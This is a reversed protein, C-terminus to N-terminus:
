LPELTITVSGVASTATGSLVYGLSDGPNLTLAGPVPSLTLAQNTDATGVLNFSGAHLLTGSGVAVASAAKYFSATCAGGSGAVRTAGVISTVILKRPAVFFKQTVLTAIYNVTVYKQADSSDAVGLSRSGM